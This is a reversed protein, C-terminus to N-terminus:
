INFWLLFVAYTLKNLRPDTIIQAGVQPAPAAAQPKSAIASNATTSTIKPAALAQAAKKALEKEKLKQQVKEYDKPPLFEIKVDADIIGIADAPRCKIVEIDYVNGNYDINIVDGKSLCAFSALEHELRINKSYNKM